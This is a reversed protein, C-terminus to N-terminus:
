CCFFLQEYTGKKKRWNLVTQFSNEVVYSVSVVNKHKWELYEQKYFLFTVCLWMGYILILFAAMSFM